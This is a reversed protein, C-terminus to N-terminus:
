PDEGVGAAERGAIWGFTMAPGLNIGGAPYHGGMVSAMDAGVAFLGPVPAGAEDLAQARGNTRVGAFTGFSGPVVKVAYFPGGEIPAVCPNPKHDLDGQLRHYPTIGRGFAPDRGDRAHRNYDAVTRELEGPDIGCARALDAITRGSRLYGRRIWGGEPFPAPRAVGLGYRRQFARACVLWSAVERGQPTARLMADVYDHYGEGENCFRRGDALVGIVGPKGRDIIHPFRGTTGDPWPVESVPCWAGPACVAAEFAAGAAEAMRAGDGAAEPVALTRHAGDAPFLAARRMADHPFGGTALVVGRGARLATEGDCGGVDFVAGAVRGDERILRRAPANVRFAVGLDAASRMLRAVLAQGNRLQMARGRLALDALHRGLRGTVHVLSRASRTATLFARLDPGAQITLGM